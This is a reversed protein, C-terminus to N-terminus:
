LINERMAQKYGEVGSQTYTDEDSIKREGTIANLHLSQLRGKVAVMDMLLRMLGVCSVTDRRPFTLLANAVGRRRFDQMTGRLSAIQAREFTVGQFISLSGELPADAPAALPDDFTNPALFLVVKNRPGNVVGNLLSHNGTPGTTALLDLGSAREQVSESYLQVAWDGLKKNDFYPYLVFSSKDNYIEAVHLFKALQFAHNRPTDVTLFADHMAAFGRFAEKIRTLPDTDATVALLLMGVPSAYSFRGGVGDPVPLLAMFKGKGSREMRFLMSHDNLGTTAVTRSMWDDGMAGALVMGALATEATTGSKSVINVYTRDIVNRRKLVDLLGTLRVPDFTDGTFYIEPIGQIQGSIVMENHYPHNLLDHLTRGGLDSGGIGVTVFVRAKSRIEDAIGAIREPSVYDPHHIPVQHCWTWARLRNVLSDYGEQDEQIFGSQLAVLARDIENLWDPSTAQYLSAAGELDLSFGDYLSTM